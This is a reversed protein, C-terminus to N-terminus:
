EDEGPESPDGGADDTPPPLSEGAEAAALAKENELRLKRKEALTAAKDNINVHRTFLESVAGLYARILEAPITAVAAIESPKVASYSVLMGDKFEFDYEATAFAAGPLEAVSIPSANPMHFLSTSQLGNGDDKVVLRYALDRRYLLGDGFENIDVSPVTQINDGGLTSFVVTIGCPRLADALNDRDSSSSPDLIHVQRILRPCAAAPSAFAKMPGTHSQLGAAGALSSLISAVQSEATVASSSLLGSPTTTLTINDKRLQNRLSNAVFTRDTDPVLPLPTMTVKLELGESRALWQKALGDMAGIAASTEAKAREHDETAEQLKEKLSEDDPSATSASEAAALKRKAEAEAEKAARVREATSAFSASRPAQPDAALHAIAEGFKERAAAAVAAKVKSEAEAADREAALKKKLEEGASPALNEWRADAAKFAAKGEAEAKEAAGLKEAASRIAKQLNPASREVSVKFLRKPLYYTVGACVSPGESANPRVTNTCERTRLPATCSAVALVILGIVTATRIRFYM